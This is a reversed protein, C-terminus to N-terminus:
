FDNLMVSCPNPLTFLAERRSPLTQKLDESLIPPQPVPFGKSAALDEASPVIAIHPEHGDLGKEVANLM